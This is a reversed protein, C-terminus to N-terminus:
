YRVTMVGHKWIYVTDTYSAWSDCDQEFGPCYDRALDADAGVDLGTSGGIWGDGRVRAVSPRCSGERGGRVRRPVLCRTRGLALDGVVERRGGDDGDRGATEWHESCDVQKV